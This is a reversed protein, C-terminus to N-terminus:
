SPLELRDTSITEACADLRGQESTSWFCLLSFVIMEMLGWLIPLKGAFAHESWTEAIMTLEKGM